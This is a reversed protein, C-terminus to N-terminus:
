WCPACGEFTRGGGGSKQEEWCWLLIEVTDRYLLARADPLRGKHTNVLAMVTLLLPNRALGWLDARRVAQRLQTTKDEAEAVTVAGHAALEAYWAEIFRDMKEDDFGALEFAPLDPLRLDAETGAPPQYSLVRCTVLLRNRPFREIFAGVADRVFARQARSPVEDLGDLLLLVEGRDLAAQIPGNAFGLNQAWLRGAIFTWLHSPEPTPLPEPLGRAFDRLIVVLPLIAAEAQPWGPLHALWQGRPELSHMALCHALHNVFTSKGGGPDGLLVLRRQAITAEIAGLPRTGAGLRSVKGARTAGTGRDGAAGGVGDYRPGRLGQGALASAARAGRRGDRYRPRPAAAPGLDTGPRPPLHHVGRDPTSRLAEAAARGAERLRAFLSLPGDSM